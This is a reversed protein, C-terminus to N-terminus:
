DEQPPPPLPMWHTIPFIDDDRVVRLNDLWWQNVGRIAGVVVSNKRAVLAKQGIIAPSMKMLQWKM